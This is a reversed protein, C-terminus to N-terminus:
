TRRMGEVWGDTKDRSEQTTRIGKIMKLRVGVKGSRTRM